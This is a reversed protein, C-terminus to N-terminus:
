PVFEKLFQILNTESDLGKGVIPIIGRKQFIKEQIPNPRSLFIYSQPRKDSHNSAKWLQDLKYLLIRMNVDSLSYGIFLISKGLMDSRLRIDLPSSFNLRDYYDSESLVISNINDMDGHFKVIQTMNAPINVLHETKFIRRYSKGQLKMATEISHDYNTTYLLKVNLDTLAQYVASSKIREEPVRLNEKMWKKLECKWASAKEMQYFEALSLYDGLNRFVAPDYDLITAIEDILKGWTPMGLTAPLGAGVFLIIDDNRLKEKIECYVDFM